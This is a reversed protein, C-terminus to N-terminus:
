MPNCVVPIDIIYMFTILLSIGTSVDEELAFAIDMPTFITDVLICLLLMLNWNVRFSPPVIFRAILEPPSDSVGSLEGAATVMSQANDTFGLMAAAKVSAETMDTMERTPRRAIVSGRRPRTDQVGPQQWQRKM